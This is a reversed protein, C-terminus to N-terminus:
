ELCLDEIERRTADSSQAPVRLCLTHPIGPAWRVRLRAHSFISWVLTTV